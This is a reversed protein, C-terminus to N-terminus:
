FLKLTISVYAFTYCIPTALKWNNLAYAINNFSIGIANNLIRNPVRVAIMQHFVGFYCSFIMGWLFFEQQGKITSLSEMVFPIPALFLFNLTVIFFVSNFSNLSLDRKNFSNEVQYKSISKM